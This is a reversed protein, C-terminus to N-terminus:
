VTALAEAIAEEVEDIVIWEVFVSEGVILTPTKEVNQRLGEQLDAEVAVAAEERDALTLMVLGHRQSFDKVWDPLSELTLSQLEALVERRFAAGAEASQRGFGRAAIAAERAWNHKALPFERHEFAVRDGFAPLLRDDLRRRLWACDKCQLDEYVVVRVPSGARGEVLRPFAM